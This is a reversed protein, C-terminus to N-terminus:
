GAPPFNSGGGGGGEFCYSRRKNGALSNRDADEAVAACRPAMAARRRPCKINRRRSAASGRLRPASRSVSPLEEVSLPGGWEVAPSALGLWALGRRSTTPGIRRCGSGPPGLRGWAAGGRWRTASAASARSIPVCLFPRLTARPAPSPSLKPACTKPRRQRQHGTHPAGRPSLSSACRRRRRGPFRPSSPSARRTRTQAAVIQLPEPRCWAPVATISWLATSARTAGCGRPWGAAGCRGAPM